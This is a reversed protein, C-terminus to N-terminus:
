YRVNEGVEEITGEPIKVATYEMRDYSFAVDYGSWSDTGEYQWDGKLYESYSIVRLTGYGHVPVYKVRAM